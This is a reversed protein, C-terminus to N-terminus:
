PKPKEVLKNVTEMLKGIRVYVGLILMSILATDTSIQATKYLCAVLVVVMIMEVIDIM